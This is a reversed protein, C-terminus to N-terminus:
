ITHTYQLSFNCYVYACHLSKFFQWSLTYHCLVEELAPNFLNRKQEGGPFVVCGLLVSVTGSVSLIEKFILFLM